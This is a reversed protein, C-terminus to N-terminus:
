KRARKPMLQQMLPLNVDAAEDSEVGIEEWLEKVNQDINESVQDWIAKFMRKRKAWHDMSETFAKEVAQRELATVLKTSSKLPGLRANTEEWQKKLEDIKSQLQEATLTCQLDKLEKTLDDGNNQLAMYIKTKGFEKCVIKSAESLTDLAKQAQTKKVGYQALHDTVGQANFPRNQQQLFSLVREEAAQM